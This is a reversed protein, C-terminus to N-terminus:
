EQMYLMLVAKKAQAKQNFFGTEADTKPAAGTAEITSKVKEAPTKVFKQLANPRETMNYSSVSDVKLEKKLYNSLSKARENALKVDGSSAKTDKAPYERDAWVALKVEGIKGSERASAVFAKIEEKSSDSLSSKGEDFSVESVMKAGLLKSAQETETSVGAHAQTLALSFFAILLSNLIKM